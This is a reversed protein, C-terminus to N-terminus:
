EIHIYVTCVNLWSVTKNLKELIEILQLSLTYDYNTKEERSWLSKENRNEGPKNCETGVDCWWTSFECGAITVGPGFCSMSRLWRYPLYTGDIEFNEANIGIELM